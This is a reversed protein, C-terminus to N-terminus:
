VLVPIGKYVKIKIYDGTKIYNTKKYDWNFPKGELKARVIMIPDGHSAALIKEDKHKKAVKSIFKFMRKEISPISEQGKKINERSYFTKQIKKHYIDFSIGQYPTHIENLHMSIHVPKKLKDAIIGASQRARLMPSSYIHDVGSRILSKSTEEIQARGETSLRMGPIRAYLITKPNHVAGHRMLYLVTKSM